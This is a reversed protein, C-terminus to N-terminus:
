GIGEGPGPRLPLSEAVERRCVLCTGTDRQERRARAGEPVGGATDQADGCGRDMGRRTSRAPRARVRQSHRRQRHDQYWHDWQDLRLRVPRIASATAPRWRNLGARPSYELRKVFPSIRTASITRCVANSLSTSYFSFYLKFLRCCALLKQETWPQHVTSKSSRPSQSCGPTANNSSGALGKESGPPTPSSM